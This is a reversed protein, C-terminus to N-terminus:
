HLPEALLLRERCVRFFSDSLALADLVEEPRGTAGQRAALVIELVVEGAQEEKVELWEILPRLDYSRGRRQRPLSQVALLEKSRHRIEEAPESVEVTVTYEASRVRTTLAPEDLNAEKVSIITLGEPLTRGLKTGIVEPDMPEELWLDLMEGRATFGV